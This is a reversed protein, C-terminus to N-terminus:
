QSSSAASNLAYNSVPKLRVPESDLSNYALRRMEAVEISVFEFEEVVKGTILYFGPGRFPFQRAVPPFHVMDLWHGDLDLFVGFNMTEGKSTATNKVHVLYGVISVTKGICNELDASKLQASPTEKLLEFPLHLPFGLLEMEDFVQENDYYELTPLRFEKVKVPFEKDPLVNFIATFEGINGRELKYVVSESMGFKLTLTEIRQLKIIPKKAPVDEFNEALKEVVRANYPAVLNTDAL